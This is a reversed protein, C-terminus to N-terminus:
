ADAEPRLQLPTSESYLMLDEGGRKGGKAEKVESYGHWVCPAPDRAPWPGTAGSNGIHFRLADSAQIMSMGMMCAKRQQINRAAKLQIALWAACSM